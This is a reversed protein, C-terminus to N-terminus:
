TEHPSGEAALIQLGPEGCERCKKRENYVRIQRRCNPCDFPPERLRLGDSEELFFASIESADLVGRAANALDAQPIEAAVIISYLCYGCCITEVRGTYAPKTKLIVIGNREHPEKAIVDRDLIPGVLVQRREDIYSAGCNLCRFEYEHRM